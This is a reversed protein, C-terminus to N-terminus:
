SLSPSVGGRRMPVFFLSPRKRRGRGRGEGGSPSSGYNQTIYMSQAACRQSQVQPVGYKGQNEKLGRQSTKKKKQSIQDNEVMKGGGVCTISYGQMVLCFGVEADSQRNGVM